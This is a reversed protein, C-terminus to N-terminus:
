WRPSPQQAASSPFAGALALRHCPHCPSSLDPPTWEQGPVRSVVAGRKQRSASGCIASWWISALRSVILRVQSLQEVTDDGSGLSNADAAVSRFDYGSSRRAAQGDQDVRRGALGAIPHERASLRAVDALDEIRIMTALNAEVFDIVRRGRHSIGPQPSLRREISM